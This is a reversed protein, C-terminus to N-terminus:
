SLNKWTIYSFIYKIWKKLSTKNINMDRSKCYEEFDIDRDYEFDYEWMWHLILNDLKMEKRCEIVRSNNEYDLWNISEFIWKNIADIFFFALDEIWEKDFDYDDITSLALNRQILM